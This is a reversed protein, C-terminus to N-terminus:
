ELASQLTGILAAAERRIRQLRDGATIFSGLGYATGAIDARIRRLREQLVPTLLKEREAEAALKRLVWFYERDEIGDRIRELRACHWLGPVSGTGETAPYYLGGDGPWVNDRREVGFWTHKYNGRPGIQWLTAGQFGYKELGWFFFRGVAPDATHWTCDHIYPWVEEGLRVREQLFEIALSSYRNSQAWIDAIGIANSLEIARPTNMATVMIKVGPAYERFLDVIEKAKKIEDPKLEDIIRTYAQDLWGREKLIPHYTEWFRIISERGADPANGRYLRYIDAWPGVYTVGLGLDNLLTGTKTFSTQGWVGLLRNYADPGFELRRLMSTPDSSFLGGMAIRYQALDRTWALHRELSGGYQKFLGTRTHTEHPLSFGFVELEIPRTLTVSGNVTATATARYIGAPTGAPVYVSVWFTTNFPKDPQSEDAVATATSALPDPYLRNSTMDGHHIERSYRLWEIRIHERGIESGGPGTFSSVELHAEETRVEPVPTLTFQASVWENGAANLKFPQATDDSAMLGVTKEPDIWVRAEAPACWLAFGSAPRPMSTPRSRHVRLLVDGRSPRGSLYMQGGPYSNHWTANVTNKKKEHLEYPATSVEIYWEISPDSPMDVPLLLDPRMSEATYTKEAVVPGDPGGRRLQVTMEPGPFRYNLGDYGTDEKGLGFQVGTLRPGRCRFTQGVRNHIGLQIWANGNVGGVSEAEYCTGEIRGAAADWQVSNAFVSEIASNAMAPIVTTMYIFVIGILFISGNLERRFHHMFAAQRM